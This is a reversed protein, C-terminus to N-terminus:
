RTSQPKFPLRRGIAKETVTSSPVPQIVIVVTARAVCRQWTIDRLRRFIQLFLWFSIVNRERISPSVTRNRANGQLSKSRTMQWVLRVSRVGNNAGFLLVRGGLGGIEVVLYFCKWMERSKWLLCTRAFLTKWHM